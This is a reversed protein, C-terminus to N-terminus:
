IGYTFFPKSESHGPLENRQRAGDLDGVNPGSGSRRARRGVGVCTTGCLGKVMLALACAIVEIFVLVDRREM